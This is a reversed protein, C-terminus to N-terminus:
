NSTVSKIQMSYLYAGDFIGPAENIYGKGFDVIIPKGEHSFWIPFDLNNERCYQIKASIGGIMKLTENQHFYHVQSKDEKFKEFVMSYAYVLKSFNDISTLELDKITSNYAPTYLDTLPKDEVGTVKYLLSDKCKQLEDNLNYMDVFNSQLSVEDKICWIYLGMQTLELAVQMDMKIGSKTYHFVLSTDQMLKNAFYVLKQPSQIKFLDEFRNISIGAKTNDQFGQISRRPFDNYSQYM